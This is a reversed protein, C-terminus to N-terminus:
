GVVDIVEVPKAKDMLMVLTRHEEVSLKEPDIAVVVHVHEHQITGTHEIEYKKASYWGRAKGEAELLKAAASAAGPAESALFAGQADKLRNLWDLRADVAPLKDADRWWKRVAEVDNRAARESIGSTAAYDLLNKRCWLGSKMKDELGMRRSEVVKATSGKPKGM